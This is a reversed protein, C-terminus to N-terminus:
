SEKVEDPIRHHITLVKVDDVEIEEVRGDAYQIEVLGHEIERDDFSRTPEGPIYVDRYFRV